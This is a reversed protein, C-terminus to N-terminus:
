TLFLVANHYNDLDRHYAMWRSDASWSAKFGLLPGHVYADRILMLLLDM